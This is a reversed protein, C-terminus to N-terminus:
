TRVIEFLKYDNGNIYKKMLPGEQFGFLKAMKSTWVRECRCLHEIRDYDLHAFYKKTLRVIYKYYSAKWEPSFVTYTDYVKDWKEKMGLLLIPVGDFLICFNHKEQKNYLLECLTNFEGEQMDLPVFQELHKNTTPELTLM